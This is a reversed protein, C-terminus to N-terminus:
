QSDKNSIGETKVENRPLFLFFNSATIYFSIHSLAIHGNKMCKMCKDAEWTGSHSTECSSGTMVDISKEGHGKTPTPVQKLKVKNINVTEGRPVSTLTRM